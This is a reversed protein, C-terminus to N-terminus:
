YNYLYEPLLSPLTKLKQGKGYSQGADAAAKASDSRFTILKQM